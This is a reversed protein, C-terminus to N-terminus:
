SWPLTQFSTNFSDRGDGVVVVPVGVLGSSTVRQEKAVRVHDLQGTRTAVVSGEVVVGVQDRIGSVAIWMIDM